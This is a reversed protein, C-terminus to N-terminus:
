WKMALKCSGVCLCVCVNNKRHRKKIRGQISKCKRRPKCKNVSKTMLLVKLCYKNM